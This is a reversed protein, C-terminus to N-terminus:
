YNASPKPPLKKNYVFRPEGNIESNEIDAESLQPHGDNPVDYWECKSACFIHLVRINLWWAKIDSDNIYNKTVGDFLAPTLWITDNQFSYILSINSGCVSCFSRTVKDSSKYMTQKGKKIFRIDSQLFPTWTAVSSGHMKRCMSCYCHQLEQPLSLLEYEIGKCQCSGHIVGERKDNFTAFGKCKGSPSALGFQRTNRPSTTTSNKNKDRPSDISISKFILPVSKVISYDRNHGRKKSSLSPSGFTIPSLEQETEKEESIQRTATPMIVTKTSKRSNPPLPKKQIKSGRKRTKKPKNNNNNNNNQKSDDNNPRKNSLRRPKLNSSNDIITNANGNSNGFGISPFRHDPIKNNNNDIPEVSSPSTAAATSARTRTPPLEKDAYQIASAQRTLPKNIPPPKTPKRPKNTSPAAPPLKKKSGGRIRGRSKARTPPAPSTQNPKTPPRTNASRSRTRPKTPLLKSRNSSPTTSNSSSNKNGSPRPPPSLPGKKSIFTM